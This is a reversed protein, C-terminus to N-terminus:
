RTTGRQYLGDAFPPNAETILIKYHDDYLTEPTSSVRVDIVNIMSEITSVLRQIDDTTAFEPCYIEVNCDLMEFIGSSPLLDRLEDSDKTKITRPRSTPTM